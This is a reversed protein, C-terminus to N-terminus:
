QVVSKNLTIKGKYKKDVVLLMCPVSSSSQEEGEKIQYEFIIKKKDNKVLSKAILTTTKNTEKEIVAIVYQKSFDIATPKDNGMVMAVGFIEDFKKQSDIKPNKLSGYRYTNKVFYKKAEIFPIEPNSQGFVIISCLMSSLIVTIKKM